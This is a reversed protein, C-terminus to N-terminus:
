ESDSVGEDQKSRHTSCLAVCCCSGSMMTNREKEMMELKDLGSRKVWGRCKEIYDGERVRQTKRECKFFNSNM